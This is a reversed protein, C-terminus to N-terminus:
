PEWPIRLFVANAIARSGFGSTSKRSSGKSATSGAVEFIMRSMSTEAAARPM